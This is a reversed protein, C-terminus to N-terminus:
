LMRNKGLRARDRQWQRDKILERKDQEQRGRALAFELKVHSGKWYLKLPILTYGQRQVRGAMRDIERRHLLLQRTRTPDCVVFACSTKLPQIESGLLLAQGNKVIVYGDSINAKGQRLSKVEWGQLAIGAELREELFYEFNARRNVAIPRAPAAAAKKGKAKAGGAKGAHGAQGAQGRAAGAKTTAM